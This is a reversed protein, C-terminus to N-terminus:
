LDLSHIVLGSRPKPDFWTSKPPLMVGADSLDFIRQVSLAPLTFFAKGAMGSPDALMHDVDAIKSIYEVLETDQIDNVGLVRSLVTLNFVSAPDGPMNQSKYTLQYWIFDFCLGLQMPNSPYFPKESPIVDFYESLEDLLSIHKDNNLSIIRHYPQSQLQHMPFVVALFRSSDHTHHGSVSLSDYAAVSAACRHHGDAIYISEVDNEFVDQFRKIKSQNTIRWFQHTVGDSTVFDFDPDLFLCDNIILDVDLNYRIAGFVPETHFGTTLIHSLRDQVKANCTLEHRKISGTKYDDVSICGVLGYYSKANATLGYLYFSDEADQLYDGAEILYQLADKSKEHVDVSVTESFLDPRTVKLFQSESASVVDSFAVTDFPLSAFRKAESVKPRYGKFPKFLPM